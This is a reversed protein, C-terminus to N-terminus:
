QYNCYKESIKVAIDMVYEKLVEIKEDTLRSSPGTISISAMVKGMYDNIPAAVCRVGEECEEDDVAYGQAKVKGLEHILEEKTKISNNTFSVLGKKEIYRDIDNGSYNLMLSKGVGTCHLPATKGILHLTRLLSSPGEISDIYVAMFDQEIALCASENSMESLEVLFPKVIDRISLQSSILNGIYSLKLTLFYKKTDYDQQAYRNEVLTNLIRVVTSDPIKTKEAIDQLKMPGHNHSMLEIVKLARNLTKNSIQEVKMNLLERLM